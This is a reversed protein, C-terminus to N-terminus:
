PLARAVGDRPIAAVVEFGLAEVENSGHLSQDLYHRLFAIGIALILALISRLVVNLILGALGQEPEAEEPLENEAVNLSTSEERDWYELGRQQLMAIAGQAIMRPHEARDASAHLYITRHRREAELGESILEPDLAVGHQSQLWGAIDDAFRRTEVIQLIDDVVFESASWNYYINEDPLTIQAESVGIPRQTVMVAATITYRTPLLFALVITLLAVLVPLGLVLPWSRWVIRAYHRLEM